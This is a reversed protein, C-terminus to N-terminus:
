GLLVTLVAVALGGFSFNRLETWSRDRLFLALAALIAVLAIGGLLMLAGWKQDALLFPRAEPDLLLRPVLSALYGSAMGAGLVWLGANRRAAEAVERRVALESEFADRLKESPQGQEDGMM